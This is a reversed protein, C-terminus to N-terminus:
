NRIANPQIKEKHNCLSACYDGYNLTGRSYDVGFAQYRQVARPTPQERTDCIITFSRMLEDIEFNDM